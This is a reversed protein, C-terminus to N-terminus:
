GELLFKNSLGQILGALQGSTQGRTRARAKIQPMTKIFRGKEFSIQETTQQAIEVLGSENRCYEQLEPSLDNFIDRLRARANEGQTLGNREVHNFRLNYACRSVERLCDQLEAWLETESKEYAAQLDEIEQCIAGIWNQKQYVTNKLANRVAEWVIEKPYEKLIEYWMDVLLDFETESKYPLTEPCQIKIATIVKVIESKTLKM